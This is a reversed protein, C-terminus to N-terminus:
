KLEWDVIHNFRDSPFEVGELTVGEVRDNVVYNYKPSYLVIAPADLLLIRQLISYNEKRENRSTAQRGRELLLDARDYNYGSLNLNPYDSRLSHWLNYQDPDVTIEIEYLLLEFDRTALTEKTMEEYGQPNLQLIVGEDEWIKKLAEGIRRNQDNDLYSLTLTLIKGDETEFFGTQEDKEYGAGGLEAAAKKPDYVLHALSGDYAWSSEAFSTDSKVGDVNADKILAEKDTIYNLGKRLSASELLKDRNNIFLIKKRFPLVTQLVNYNGSYENLYLIDMLSMNGVTDLLGNRFAIELEKVNPYLRYEIFEIKALTPYFLNRELLIGSDAKSAVKYAGSGVPFDEFLSTEFTRLPVESLLHKPVIYVAVSEFFTANAEQTTIQLSYDSTKKIKVGELSQGVTDKSYNQALSIATEFTFVVDDATLKVGDQWFLNENLTFDYKKKDSSVKWSKAVEPLPDGNMDVDILKQYVLRQIDRDAQTQPIFIPNLLTISGVTGEVLRNEPRKLIYKDLNGASVNTFFLIGVLLYILIYSFPSTVTVLKQIYIPYNWLHDRLGIRSSKGRSQAM